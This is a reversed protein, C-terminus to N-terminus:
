HLQSCEEGPPLFRKFLSCFSTIDGQSQLIHGSDDIVQIPLGVCTYFVNLMDALQEKKLITYLYPKM